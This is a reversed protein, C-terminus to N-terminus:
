ESTLEQKTLMYEPFIARQLHARDDLWVCYIMSGDITDVTMKTLSSKLRVTDGVKLENM